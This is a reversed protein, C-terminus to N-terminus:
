SRLRRFQAASIPSLTRFVTSFLFYRSRASTSSGPVAVLENAIMIDVLVCREKLSSTAARSASSSASPNRRKLSIPGRNSLTLTCYGVMLLGVLGMNTVYLALGAIFSVAAIVVLGRTCFILTTWSGARLDFYRLKIVACRGIVMPSQGWPGVSAASGTVDSVGGTGGAACGTVGGTAGTVGVASNGATPVVTIIGPPGVIQTGGPLVHCRVM